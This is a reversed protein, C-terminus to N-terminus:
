KLKNLKQGSIKEIADFDNKAVIEFKENGYAVRGKGTLSILTIGDRNESDKFAKQIAKTRDMEISVGNQLYKKYDAVMEDYSEESLDDTTLVVEDAFELSKNIMPLRKQHDRGSMFGYISVLHADPFQSRLTHFFYAFADETHAYDIVVYLKKTIKYLEYRGPPGEFHTMAEDIDWVNIIDLDILVTAAMLLNSANYKGILPTHLVCHESDMEFEAETNTFDLVRIDAQSDKGVRIVRKGDAEVEKALRKGYANDINIIGIGDDKLHNFLLKKAQYYKEMSGHYTLHDKHINLFLAYDFRVGQIRGQDLGQSSSEIVVYDDNSEYLSKQLFGPEPTTLRSTEEVDNIENIVTGFFAVSQKASKLLHRVMYATTTKGNTGTIGIVTKDNSPFDYSAAVLNGYILRTNEVKIYPVPCEVNNKQGIIIVAGNAIAEDISDHGDHSFGKIAVFVNGTKVDYSKDTVGTVEITEDIIKLSTLGSKEKLEEFKLSIGRAAFSKISTPM